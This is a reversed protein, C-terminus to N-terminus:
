GALVVTLTFRGGWGYTAQALESAYLFGATQVLGFCSVLAVCLGFCLGLCHLDPGSPHMRSPLLHRNHVLQGLM